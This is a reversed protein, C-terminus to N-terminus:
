GRAPSQLLSPYVKAGEVMQPKAPSDASVQGHEIRGSPGTWLWGRMEEGYQEVDAVRVNANGEVIKEVQKWLEARRRPSHEDQLILDRLHSPVVHPFPVHVPDSYHSREQQQLQHLAVQVLQRVLEADSRRSRLKRRAWLLAATLAFIAALRAKHRKLARIAALRVRCSMPMEATETAFWYEDSADSTGNRWVNVEGHSELDRLALRNVEELVDEDFPRGSRENESRLAALLAEAQLGFVRAEENGEKRRMREMGKCIVEGRRQRLLRSAKSAQMAVMMLKETDPVCTPAIPLLGGLRLPSQRPVYDLTCGVFNGDACHGHQPCPTCTPRLHLCDATRLVTDPLDPLTAALSTRRSDVLANSRSGTDCFGAALKEERWWLVYAAAFAVLLGRLVRTWVTWDISSRVPAAVVIARKNVVEPSDSQRGEFRRGRVEVPSSSRRGRPTPGVVRSASAAERQRLLEAFQPPTTKVKSTPVMYQVGIPTGNGLSARANNPQRRASGPLNKPPSSVPPLEQEIDVSDEEPAAETHDFSEPERTPAEFQTSHRARSASAHKKPSSSSGDRAAQTSLAPMSKRSALRAPQALDAEHRAPGLSSKRRKTDRMPTEEGGSQFPNYDSFNGDGGSAGISVRGKRAAATIESLRPTAPGGEAVKRKKPSVRPAEDEETDYNDRLPAEYEVPEEYAAEDIDMADVPEPLAAKRSRKKPTPASAEVASDEDTASPHDQDAAKGKGKRKSKKVAVEATNTTRSKTKKRSRAPQQNAEADEEREYDTDLERLSSGQSEGDLVGHDSARVARLEALLQAAQPRIHQEYAVVLDSKKANSAYPVDHALLIGRLDAVKVARPDFDHLLYPPPTTM